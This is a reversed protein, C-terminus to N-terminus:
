QHHLPVPEDRQTQIIFEDLSNAAAGSDISTEAQYIAAQFTDAKGYISLAYAANLIVADRKESHHGNLINRTIAANEIPDGGQLQLRDGLKFGYDKPIITRESIAGDKVEIVYNDGLTTLEDISYRNYIVGVKKHDLKAIANAILRATQENPTGIIQYDVQAPNLIPGLVNFVTAIGLRRRIPAIIKMAPHFNPAYLFNMMADEHPQTDLQAGLAELVDASGSKSTASRNGHKVVRAGAGAVVFAAVTSINFTNSHDGGTGCVDISNQLGGVIKMRKRMAQAFAAIEDPTEGRNALTTLVEAFDEHNKDTQLIDTIMSEIADNTLTTTLDHQSREM